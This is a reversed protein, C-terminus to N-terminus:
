GIDSGKEEMRALAMMHLEVLTRQEACSMCVNLGPHADTIVVPECKPGMVAALALGAVGAGFTMALGVRKDVESRDIGCRNLDIRLFLPLQGALMLTGCAICPGLAEEGLRPLGDLGDAM